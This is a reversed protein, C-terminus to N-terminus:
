EYADCEEIEILGMDEARLAIIAGRIVFAVPDQAPSKLVCKIKTGQILGIDQLRRRISGHLMIKKVYGSQGIKMENMRM